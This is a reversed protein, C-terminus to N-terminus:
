KEEMHVDMRDPSISSASLKAQLTDVDGHEAFDYKSESEHEALAGAAEAAMDLEKDELVGSLQRTGMHPTTAPTSQLSDPLELGGSDKAEAVDTGATGTEDKWAQLEQKLFSNLVAPDSAAEFANVYSSLDSAETGREYDELSFGRSKNFSARAKVFAPNQLAASATTRELPNFKLLGELLTIFDASSSPFVEAWSPAKNRPALHSAQLLKQAAPRLGRPCRQVEEETPLGCRRMIAYLQYRSDGLETFVRVEQEAGDEDEDSESSDSMASADGMFLPECAGTGPELSQLMEGVICGVSWMDIYSDYDQMELIIEPARYWRTVVHTTM